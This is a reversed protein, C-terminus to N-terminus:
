SAAGRIVKHMAFHYHKKVAWTTKLSKRFQKRRKVLAYYM